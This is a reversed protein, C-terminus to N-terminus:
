PWLGGTNTHPVVGDPFMEKAVAGYSKGALMAVCAIGCGPPIAAREALQQRSLLIEGSRPHAADLAASWLRAGEAAPAGRRALDRLVATHLADSM